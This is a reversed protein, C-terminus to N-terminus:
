QKLLDPEGDFSRNKFRQKFCIKVPFDPKNIINQRNM